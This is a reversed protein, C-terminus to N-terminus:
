YNCFYPDGFMEGMKLSKLCVIENNIYIFHEITDGVDNYGIIELLKNEKYIRIQKRGSTLCKIMCEGDLKGKKVNIYGCNQMDPTMLEWHGEALGKKFYASVMIGNLMGSYDCLVYRIPSPNYFYDRRKIMGSYYGNARKNSGKIYAINGKFEILSFDNSNQFSFFVFFCLLLNKM